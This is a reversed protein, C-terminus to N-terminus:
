NTVTGNVVPTNPFIESDVVYTAAVNAYAFTTVQEQSAGLKVATAGSKQTEYELRVWDSSRTTDSLRVEDIRADIGQLCCNNTEMRRILFPDAAWASDIFSYPDLARTDTAVGNVYLTPEGDRYTAALHTSAGNVVPTSGVTEEANTGTQSVAFQWSTANAE